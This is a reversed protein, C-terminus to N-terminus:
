AYIKAFRIIDFQDNFFDAKLKNNQCYNLIANEQGSDFELYACADPKLHSSMSALFKEIHLLGLSDSFIAHLPEFDIVSGDLKRGAPVYPPNCFIIDFKEQEPVSQWMDSIIVKYREKDISNNEANIQIQKAMNSDVDVFACYSNPVKQLVSLGICGSGACMDLINLRADIPIKKLVESVMFETEVRPILPRLSLDIKLNLFPKWGIIYDLPEGNKFRVLDQEIKAEDYIGYYKDRILWNIEQNFNKM